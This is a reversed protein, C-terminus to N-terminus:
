RLPTAGEGPADIWWVEFGPLGPIEGAETLGLEEAFRVEASFGNRAMAVARVRPPLHARLHDGTVPIGALARDMLGVSQHAVRGDVMAGVWTLRPFWIEGPNAQSWDYATEAPLIAPDLRRWGNEALLSSVVLVGLLAAPIASWAWRDQPGDRAPEAAVALAAGAVLLYSVYALSNVSGGHKHFGLVALPMQCLAVWGFLGLIERDRALPFALGWVLLPPLVNLLCQRAVRAVAVAPDGLVLTHGAPVTWLNLWVNEAPGFFAVVLGLSVAGFALLIGVFRRAAVSGRRWWVWLVLAPALLLTTQKTWLALFCFAGATRDHGRVLAWCALFSAGLAPADVHVNFAAYELARVSFASAAFCLFMSTGRRPCRAERLVVVAVPLLFCLTAISQGIVIATAPREAWTAPLYVLAGIPGYIANLVADRDPGPYIPQGLGLAFSRALRVGHYDWM